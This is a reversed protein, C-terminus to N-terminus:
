AWATGAARRINIDDIVANGRHTLLFLIIDAIEEPDILVSKDLDPRMQAIMETDVGGPCLAHVRIDDAQLEKALVKTFGLLAHKSATYAGQDTYGKRGVVSSINIIAPGGNERVSRRLQPIAARCLLFPARANISMIKDWDEATTDEIPKSLAAGANNILYDIGGLMEVMNGVIKEPASPDTLDISMYEAKRGKGTIQEAVRQLADTNRGVLMCDAGADALACAAARGIGRSAGTILAKRKELKM